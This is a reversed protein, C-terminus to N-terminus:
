KTNHTDIENFLKELDDSSLIGDSFFAKFEEFSLAGDDTQCLFYKLNTNATSRFYCNLRKILQMTLSISKRYEIVLNFAFVSVPKTLEEFYRFCLFVFSAKLTVTVIQIFRKLILVYM